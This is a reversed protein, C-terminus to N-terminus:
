FANLAQRKIETSSTCHYHFNDDDWSEGPTCAEHSSRPTVRTTKVTTGRLTGAAVLDGSGSLCLRPVIESPLKYEGRTAVCWPVAPDFVSVPSVRGKTDTVFGTFANAYPNALNFGDYPLVRLTNPPTLNLSTAGTLTSAGALAGRIGTLGANPTVRFPEAPHTASQDCDTLVEGGFVNYDGSFSMRGTCAVHALTIPAGTNEGTVHFGVGTFTGAIAFVEDQTTTEASNVQMTFSLTNYVSAGADILFNRSARAQNTWIGDFLMYGFSDTASAGAPAMFHFNTSFGGITIDRFVTREMWNFTNQFTFGEAHAGAPPSGTLGGPGIVTLDEWRQGLMSGATICRVNPNTCTVTFGSIMGSGAFSAGYHAADLRADLFNDGDYRILTNSRGEGVLSLTNRHILITGQHVVYSGAPIHVTCAFDCAAALANVQTILDAKARPDVANQASAIAGASVLLFMVFWGILRAM